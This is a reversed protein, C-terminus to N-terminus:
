FYQGIGFVFGSGTGKIGRGYDLRLIVDYARKYILRAGLGAFVVMNDSDIMDLLQGGSKRWTGSDCFTVTQVGWTPNEWLTQRYEINLVLSATGRDIRNGIGRINFYNDLVFPALFINTNSSIGLRNRVSLNGKFSFTKFFRIDNFISVFSEREKIEYTGLLNFTNAWGNLYFSNYNLHNFQHIGKFSLKKQRFVDPSDSYKSPMTHVFEENIFGIGMELENRNIEFAYNISVEANFNTYNYYQKNSKFPFPELFSWKRLLYNLGWSKFVLPFSQKLYFSHKENYQYFLVTRIGRGKGNEDLLGVRFWQNGKTAGLELIPLVTKVEKCVFKVTSVSDDEILEYNVNSFLRTNMILQNASALYTSNCKKNNDWDILKLLYATQTRKLGEFQIKQANSFSCICFYIAFLLFAPKM